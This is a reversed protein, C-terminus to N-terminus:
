AMDKAADLYTRTMQPVKMEISFQHIMKEWRTESKEGALQEIHM